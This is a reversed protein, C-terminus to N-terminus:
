CALSLRCRSFHQGKLARKPPPHLDAPVPLLQGPACQTHHADGSIM